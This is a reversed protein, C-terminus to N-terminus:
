FKYGYIITVKLYKVVVTTSGVFIYIKIGFTKAVMRCGEVIAVALCVSVVFWSLCHGSFM